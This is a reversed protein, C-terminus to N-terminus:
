RGGLASCPVCLRAEPRALLREAPIETGCRECEGYGGARLRDQAARLEDLTHETRVLLAADRAQDLSATSGEPDHEDDSSTLSRADRTTGIAQLLATRQALAQEIRATLLKGYRPDPEPLHTM